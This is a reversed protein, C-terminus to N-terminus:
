GSGKGSPGTYKSGRLVDVRQSWAIVAFRPFYDRALRSLIRRAVAESVVVEIRVNGGELESARTGRSGQGHVRGVTYGSAGLELVDRRLREELIAESVITVLRLETTASEEDSM